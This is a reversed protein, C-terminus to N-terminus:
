KPGKGAATGVALSDAGPFNPADESRMHDIMWRASAALESRPYKALLERFAKEAEDYNKLEESNVFGVMFQAQPAIDADPFNQVVKRYGEIRSDATGAQQADQFLERATKKSSLFGKIAGSDPSVGIRERAKKLQDQYFANQRQQALTRTIFAKVTEFPRISAAKVADVKIVHWGKDTHYPGAIAGEPLKLASEALAPQPGLASIAGDKTVMGLSGGNSRTTSDASYQTVLKNWDAGKAKALALVRRAELETKLQIHRLTVSAQIRFDDLHADYYAKAESDTPAPSSAMVENVWTRIVLDRRQSALQRQLDARDPVGHGQADIMWVREDVLRDLLQQRGEPTTYQSRYQEPIDLLRDNLTRRTITEKGVRVLVIDSDNPAVVPRPLGPKKAPAAMITVASLALLALAAGLTRARMM